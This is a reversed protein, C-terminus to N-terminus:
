AFLPRICTVGGARRVGDGGDTGRLLAVATWLIAESIRSPLDSM